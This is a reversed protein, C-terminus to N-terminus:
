VLGYFIMGTITVMIVLIIVGIKTQCHPCIGSPTHHERYPHKAKCFHCDPAPTPKPHKSSM